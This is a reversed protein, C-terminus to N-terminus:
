PPKKHLAAEVKHKEQPRPIMVGCAALIATIGGWAVNSAQSGMAGIVDMEGKAALYLGQLEMKRVPVLAKAMKADSLSYYMGNCYNTPCLHGLYETTAASPKKAPVLPDLPSAAACGCLAMAVLLFLIKM